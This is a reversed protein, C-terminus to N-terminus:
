LHPAQPRAFLVLRTVRELFSRRSSGAGLALTTVVTRNLRWMTEGGGACPELYGSLSHLAYLQEGFHGLYLMVHGPLHLLVVGRAAAGLIAQRKAAPPLHGVELREVGAAAQQASNRPLDIGFSAFLDMLLRSCDRRHASGGWGYPQHLLTFARTFLQRVTLPNASPALAASAIWGLGLGAGTPVTVAQLTAGATPGPAPGAARPPVDALPLRLGLRALGLLTGGPAAAGDPQSWIAVNDSSVVGPHAPQLYREAQEATLPPSLASLATWGTAYSSWVQVYPGAHALVRVPEGFRLQSCQLLDFDPLFGPEVVRAATPLCRLPTSQRVVRVEDLAVARALTQRLGRLLQAASLGDAVLTRGNAVNDTLRQLRAALDHALAARDLARRRVDWRGVPRGHDTLAAIRADHAKRTGADLLPLDIPAPYRALWVAALEHEPETGPPLPPGPREIPCAPLGAASRRAGTHCGLLGATGLSALVLWAVLHRGRRTATM